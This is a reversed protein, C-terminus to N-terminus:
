HIIQKKEEKLDLDRYIHTRKKGNLYTPIEDNNIWTASSNLKSSFKTLKDCLCKVCLIWENMKTYWEIFLCAYINQLCFENELNIMDYSLIHKMWEILTTNRTVTFENALTTLTITQIFWLAACINSLLKNLLCWINAKFISLLM